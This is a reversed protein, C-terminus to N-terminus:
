SSATNGTRLAPIGILIRLVFRGSSSPVMITSLVQLFRERDIRFNKFLEKIERNPNKLMSLFLHEVSVYEDGMTKAEDESYILVKNLNQGVYVKGGSVKPRKKLLGEVQALFVDGDIEMKEILKKILSDEITLLTYLLHEQEIEQHGYDFAVKECQNVAEMSKQTFKSINMAVGGRTM